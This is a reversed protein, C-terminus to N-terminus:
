AIRSCLGAVKLEEVDVITNFGDLGDVHEGMSRVYLVDYEEDAFLDSL